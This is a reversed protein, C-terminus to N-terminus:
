HGGAISAAADLVQQLPGLYLGLIAAAALGVGLLVLGGGGDSTSEPESPGLLMSTAHRAIAAFAILILIFAAATIWGHGTALGARAIGLESAFISFPPLGLLAVLSVGFIGALEPQSAGLGRVMAIESTGTAHLIRGASCFAVAKALGHGLVHLLAAAMGLKAGFASGLAILGMHEISSYALLRKYDRQAILLTAAVALSAVAAILLLTRTYGPGLAADIITRYRLIAYFAVSLLVGSM